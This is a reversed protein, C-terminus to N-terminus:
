IAPVISPNFGWFAGISDCLEDLIQQVQVDNIGTYYGVVATTLSNLATISASNVTLGEITGAIYNVIDGVSGSYTGGLTSGELDVTILGAPSQGLKIYGEALCTAYQGATVSQSVLAAFNAVDTTSDTLVVGKDRVALIDEVEGNHVQYILNGDDM